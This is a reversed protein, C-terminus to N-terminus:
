ALEAIRPRIDVILLDDGSQCMLPGTIVGHKLSVIAYPRFHIPIWCLIQGAANRMWGDQVEEYWFTLSRDCTIPDPIRSVSDPIRVSGPLTCEITGHIFDFVYTKHNSCTVAMMSMADYNSYGTVAASHDLLLDGLCIDDPINVSRPVHTSPINADPTIDYSQPKDEQLPLLRIGQAATVLAIYQGDNSTRAARIFDCDSYEVTSSEQSVGNIFIVTHESLRVAAYVLKDITAAGILTMQKLRGDTLHTLLELNLTRYIVPVQTLRDKALIYEADDTFRELRVKRGEHQLRKIVQTELQLTRSVHLKALDGNFNCVVVTGDPHVCGSTLKIESPFGFERLSDVVSVEREFRMDPLSILRLNASREMVALMRRGNITWVATPMGALLGEFTLRGFNRLSGTAASRNVDWATCVADRGHSGLLVMLRSDESFVMNHVTMPPDLRNSTTVATGTRSNFVDFTTPYVVITKDSDPTWALGIVHRTEQSLVLTQDWAPWKKLHGRLVHM